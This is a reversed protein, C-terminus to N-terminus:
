RILDGAKQTLAFIDSRKRSPSSARGGPEERQRILREVVKASNLVGPVGAGPHTGAGVFYLGDVDESANHFRFWASQTLRPEPGFGAGAVSRLESEFYNPTIFFDTRLHERLGPLHRQELYQLIRDFYGRGQSEWDINADNNPVPSLVYFTDCGKPALSTDSATPRHLYLSFDDALIKRGFVDDLLERYREGLVITHHKVDPYIRDTGFYGVFLGMSQNLREIRGDTNRRRHKRDILRTYVFSPDANSVVFDFAIREPKGDASGPGEIHVARARGQSVEIETVPTEFRIEVGLEELLRVMGNVISTTGGLAFHVGWKRELWHILLYISTVNFPNGGVLLPQFTFVQRLRPDEIYSAVLSYVSRYNRLKIMQPVVRLMTSFRDFPQDVLEEYGTEFIRRAHEALRLYGDVDAPNFRRIQDILRDEDGVYDFVSGDAFTVRYFPDVPALEFYDSRERGVLDFLEDFLHPATIVTPGADFIHGDREFVGARGGAQARAELVTVKYGDAHLRIAAALGGFGTGIVVAHQQNL